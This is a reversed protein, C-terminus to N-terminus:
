RLQAKGTAAEEKKRARNIGAENGVIADGSWLTRLLM